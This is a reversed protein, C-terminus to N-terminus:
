NKKYNLLTIQWNYIKETSSVYSVEYFAKDVSLLNHTETM